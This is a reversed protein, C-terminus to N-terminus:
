KPVYKILGFNTAIWLNDDDLIIDLIVNAYNGKRFYIPTLKNEDFKILGDNTAMWIVGNKGIEIDRVMHDPIESNKKSFHVWNNDKLISFGGDGYGGGYGIYLNDDESFRVARVTSITLESNEETLSKWTSNEFILLGDNHGIAIIGKRNIDIARVTIKDKPLDLKSWKNNYFTMIGNIGGFYIVGKEDESIAIVSIDNLEKETFNYWTNGDLMAIGENPNSYSIWIRNKSDVFIPSIYDGQIINFSEKQFPIFDNGNFLVLGKNSTGIWKNGNKDIAISLLDDEPLNSTSKDYLINQGSMLVPIILTIIKLLYNKM